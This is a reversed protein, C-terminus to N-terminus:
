WTRRGEVVGIGSDADVGDAGSDDGGLHHVAEGASGGDAALGDYGLLRDPPHAGWLLDCSSHEPEAGVFGGESDSVCEHDVAALRDSRSGGPTSRPSVVCASVTLPTALSVGM